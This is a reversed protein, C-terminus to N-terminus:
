QSEERPLDRRRWEAGYGLGPLEDRHTVDGVRM